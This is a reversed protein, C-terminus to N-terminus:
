MSLLGLFSVLLMVDALEQFTKVDCVPLTLPQALVLDLDCYIRGFM